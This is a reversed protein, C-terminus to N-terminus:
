PKRPLGVSWQRSKRPIANCVRGLCWMDWINLQEHFWACKAAKLKHGAAQLRDMVARLRTLNQEFTAGLVIIDDLYCLCVQWQLGMLVREMLRQFTTPANSLGFPMVNFHFLGRRTAFATMPKATDSMKIQWYGSALDM